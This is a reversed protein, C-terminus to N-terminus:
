GGCEINIDYKKSVDEIADVVNIFSENASAM